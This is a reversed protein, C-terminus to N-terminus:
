SARRRTEITNYKYDADYDWFLWDGVTEATTSGPVVVFAARRNSTWEFGGARRTLFEAAPAGGNNLERSIIVNKKM